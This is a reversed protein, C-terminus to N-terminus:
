SRSEHEVPAEEPSSVVHQMHMGRLEPVDFTQHKELNIASAALAILSTKSIMINIVM